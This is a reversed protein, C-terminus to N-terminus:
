VAKFWRFVPDFWVHDQDFMLRKTNNHLLSLSLTCMFYEFSLSVSILEHIM